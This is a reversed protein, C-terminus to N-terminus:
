IVGRLILKFVLSALMLCSLGCITLVVWALGRDWSKEFQPGLLPRSDHIRFSMATYSAQPVQQKRGEELGKAYGV